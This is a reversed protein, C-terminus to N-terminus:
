YKTCKQRCSHCWRLDTFRDLISWKVHRSFKGISTLHEIVFVTLSLLALSPKCNCKCKAYLYPWQWLSLADKSLHWLVVFRQKAHTSLFPFKTTNQLLKVEGRSLERVNFLCSSYLTLDVLVLEKGAETSSISSISNAKPCTVICVVLYVVTLKSTFM